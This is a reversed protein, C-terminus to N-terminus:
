KGRTYYVIADQPNSSEFGFGNWPASSTGLYVKNEVDIYIPGIAHKYPFINKWLLGGNSSFLVETPLTLEGNFHSIFKYMHNNDITFLREPYELPNQQPKPIRNYNLTNWSEGNNLSYYDTGSSIAILSDGNTIFENIQVNSAVRKWTKGSDATIVINLYTAVTMKEYINGYMASVQLEGPIVIKNWQINAPTIENIQRKKCGVSLLAIVLIYIYILNHM